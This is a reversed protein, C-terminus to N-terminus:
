LQLLVAIELKKMTMGEQNRCNLIGKQASVMEFRSTALVASTDWHGLDRKNMGCKIM